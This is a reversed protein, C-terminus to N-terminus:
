LIPMCFVDSKIFTLTDANHGTAESRLYIINNNVYIYINFRSRGVVYYSIQKKFGNTLPIIHSLDVGNLYTTNISIITLLVSSYTTTITPVIQFNETSNGNAVFTGLAYSYHLSTSNFAPKMTNSSDCLLKTGNYIKVDNGTLDFKIGTEQAGTNLVQYTQNNITITNDSSNLQGNVIFPIDLLDINNITIDQNNILIETAANEYPVVVTNIQINLVYLVASTPITGNNAIRACRSTSKIDNHPNARNIDYWFKTWDPVNVWNGVEHVKGDVVLMYNKRPSVAFIDTFAANDFYIYYDNTGATYIQTTYYPTFTIYDMSSHFVTSVITTPSKMESISNESNTIHLIPINNSDKGIFLSM